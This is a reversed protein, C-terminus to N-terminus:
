RSEPDPFVRHINVTVVRHTRLYELKIKVNIRKESLLLTHFYKIKIRVLASITQIIIFVMYIIYFKM